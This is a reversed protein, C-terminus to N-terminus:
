AGWEPGDPDAHFDDFSATPPPPPPVPPLTPAGGGFRVRITAVGGALAQFVALAEEGAAIKSGIWPAREATLHGIQIGRESFVAVAHPDHPNKPERRLEVPDGPSCQLLEFRRNSKAKDANAYDIGVVTLSLERQDMLSIVAASGLQDRQLSDIAHGMSIAWMKLRRNHAFQMVLVPAGESEIM